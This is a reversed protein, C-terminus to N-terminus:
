ERDSSKAASKVVQMNQMELVQSFEKQSLRWVRSLPDLLIGYWM